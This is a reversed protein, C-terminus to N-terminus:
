MADPAVLAPLVSVDEIEELHEICWVFRELRDNPVSPSGFRACEYFKAVIEDGRMPRSPGSAGAPVSRELRVGRALHVTIGEPADIGDVSEIDVRSALALVHPQRLGSQTFDSLSVGGNALAVSVAYPISDAAVAANPPKRREDLPECWPMARRSGRITISAVDAPRTRHTAVIDLAAEIFPHTMASTPWPKFVTDVITFAGDSISALPQLDYGGDYHVALFGASGELISCTADLGHSALQASLVGVHSPFATYVAKAPPDGEIVVQRLGAAQMGALSLASHM